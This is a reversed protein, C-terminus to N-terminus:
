GVSWTSDGNDTFVLTGAPITIPAVSTGDSNEFTVTGGDFEGGTIRPAGAFISSGSVLVEALSVVSDTEPANFVGGEVVVPQGYVTRVNFEVQYALVDLDFVPDNAWLRVGTTGGPGSKLRGDSDLYGTFPLLKFGSPTAYTPALVAGGSLVPSFTVAGVLPVVDADVGGDDSDDHSAFLDYEVTFNLVSM